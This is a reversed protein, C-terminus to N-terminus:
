FLSTDSLKAAMSNVIILLVLNVVNNFLGVATTFSYQGNLIGLKYTYTAIIESVMINTDNQLLYVKEFGISMIRGMDMVLIIVATPLLVPVDIYWMRKLKNAGDVIAAEHLEPNVNSLVAIYIISSWGLQQWIGSWVYIHKFLDPKGMFYISSGGLAKIITNIIGSNPSLFVLMMGVMVVQSIFHPAYTVTQVIKKFRKSFSYQLCIAMVISLPFGALLHYISLILTNKILSWVLYSSFFREFHKFGVWPSGMIGLGARFDKFAIQVGYIPWYVFLVLYVISPVLFLYLIYNPLIKKKIIDRTVSIKSVKSVTETNM